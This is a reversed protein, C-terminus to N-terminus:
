KNPFRLFLFCGAIIPFAIVMAILFQGAFSFCLVGIVDFLIVLFTVAAVRLLTLAKYISIYIIIVIFLLSVQTCALMSFIQMDLLFNGWQSGFKLDWHGLILIDWLSYIACVLLFIILSVIFYGPLTRIFPRSANRPHNSITHKNM